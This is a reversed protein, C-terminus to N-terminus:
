EARGFRGLLVAGAAGRTLAILRLSYRSLIQALLADDSGQLGLLRALIPLETDNLKLVQALALSELVVQESWYPPRLNIDLVRLCKAPLGRM